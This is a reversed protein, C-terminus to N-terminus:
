KKEEQSEFHKGYLIGYEGELLEHKKKLAEYQKTLEQMKSETEHLTTTMQEKEKRAEAYKAEVAAKDEGHKDAVGHEQSAHAAPKAKGVLQKYKRARFFFMISLALFVLACEMLLLLVLADVRIM